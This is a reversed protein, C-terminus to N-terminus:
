GADRAGCGPHHGVIWRDSGNVRWEVVSVSGPKIRKLMGCLLCRRDATAGAGRFQVWSCRKQRIRGFDDREVTTYENRTGM